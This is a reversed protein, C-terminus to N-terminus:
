SSLWAYRNALFFNPLDCRYSTLHRACGCRDDTTHALLNQQSHIAALPMLEPVLVVVSPAAKEEIESRLLQVTEDIEVAYGVQFEVDRCFLHTMWAM